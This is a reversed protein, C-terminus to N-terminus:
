YTTVADVSIENELAALVVVRRSDEVERARLERIIEAGKGSWGCIVIHGKANASGMGKGKNMVTTGADAM